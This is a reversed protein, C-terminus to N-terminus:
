TRTCGRSAKRPTESLSRRACRWAATETRFRSDTPSAANCWMDLCTLGGSRNGTVSLSGVFATILACRSSCRHQYGASGIKPRDPAAADGRRGGRRTHPRELKRLIASVHHDVTKESIVLQTAIATNRLGKALLALVELERATLGAPNERTRPARAALCVVCAVSACGALWSRLPRARAWHRCSTTRGACCSKRTPTRWRWRRRTRAVSSAVLAQSGASARGGAVVRVARGRGGTTASRATRRAVALVGARRGGLTGSTAARTLARRGDGARRGGDRRALWAAEGRAAAVPAFRFLEGTPWALLQEESLPATADPDGRRARVLGLATLAMGRPAPASRPDRLVLTASETAHDWRGRDLEIRARAGLLYLRWTDLGRERCYELGPGLYADALDFRRQTTACRVINFYARGAYDHLDHELALALAEELKALGDEIEAQLEAAGINSLAYVTAETDDLRRALELARDALRSRRKSTRSWWGASRSTALAGDGARAWAPLQELLQVAELALAEGERVRAVFFMLRSLTRLADGEGLQDGLRRRCELAEEQAEIAAAFQDTMWCEGVRRKLLEARRALALAGAFRLARAYQAAAERHAGGRAAEEAAHPAWRLAAGRDGAAEAHNALRAYDLREGQRVELAAVVARHLSVRRDPPISEEVAVRALEHRFGVDARGAVLMGSAVCEELREALEPAVAELLWLEIIGPVVATAELLRRAPSSLRGARALVADRVTPPVREGATALVETVFFPNGGTVRYMDAGGAGAPAALAQVAELSLPSLAVRRVGHGIRLEGLVWRLPHDAALEDDRYTAIVLASLSEARRGLMTMVDLTAEDAWHLDEIVLIAPATVALEDIVAAFCRAPHEGRAITEAFGDSATAAIDVFPAFPRPTRLGDCAGWLVRREPRQHHCFERVLATKGIGAEGMVLVLRGRGDVVDAWSAELAELAADRELLGGHGALTIPDRAADGVSVDDLAAIQGDLWGLIPIGM